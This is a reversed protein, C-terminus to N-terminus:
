SGSAFLVGKLPQFFNLIGFDWFLLFSTACSLYVCRRSSISGAFDGDSLAKFNSIYMVTAEVVHLKSRRWVSSNTADARVGIAVLSWRGARYHEFCKDLASSVFLRMSQCICAATRLECRLVTQASVEVMSVIAFDAAAISTCSRRLGISFISNMSLRGGRGDVGKGRKRLTFSEDVGEPNMSAVALKNSAKTLARDKKRGSNRLLKLAGQKREAQKQLNLVHKVLEHKEANMLEDQKYQKSTSLKQKVVVEKESSAVVINADGPKWSRQLSSQSNHSHQSAQSQSDNGAFEGLSSLSPSKSSMSPANAGDSGSMDIDILKSWLPRETRSSDAAAAVVVGSASAIQSTPEDCLPIASAQGHGPQSREEQEDQIVLTPLRIPLKLIQNCALRLANVSIVGSVEAEIDPTLRFIQHAVHKAVGFESFFTQIKNKAVVWQGSYGEFAHQELLTAMARQAIVSMITIPNPGFLFTPQKSFM